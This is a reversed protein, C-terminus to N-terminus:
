STIIVGCVCLRVFVRCVRTPGVANFVSQEVPELLLEKFSFWMAGVAVALGAAIVISYGAGEAWPADCVCEGCGACVCVLTNAAAAAAKVGM